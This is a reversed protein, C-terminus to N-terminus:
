EMYRNEPLGSSADFDFVEIANVTRNVLALKDGDINSKLYGVSNINNAGGSHQSGIKYTQPVPDVGNCDVSFVYFEDNNWGHTIVWYGSTDAKLVANVKETVPSVLTINIKGTVLEGLPNALTGNGPLSTNLESYQLGDPRALEDVTFIYYIDPNQLNPLILGSQTASNHGNLTVTNLVQHSRDWVRRGDTYFLLTGENDSISAVGEQTNLNGDTLASPPNTNFNLGARDGFYWNNSPNSISQAAVSITITVLILITHELRRIM